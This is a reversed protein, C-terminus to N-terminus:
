SEPGLQPYFVYGGSNEPFIRCDSLQFVDMTLNDVGSFIERGNKIIRGRCSYIVLVYFKYAGTINDLIKILFRNPYGRKCLSDPNKVCFDIVQGFFFSTKSFVMDPALTLFIDMFSGRDAVEGLSIFTKETSLGPRVIGWNDFNEESGRRIKIIKQFNPSSVEGNMADVFYRGNTSIPIILREM